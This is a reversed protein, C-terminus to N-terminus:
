RPAAGTPGARRNTRAIRLDPPRSTPVWRATVDSLDPRFAHVVSVPTEPFADALRQPGGRDAPDAVFAGRPTRYVLVTHGRVGGATRVYFSLLRAEEILDGREIRLRLAAASEIFCGNPLAGGPAPTPPGADAAMIRYRRFGPELAALLPGFDAKEEALRGLHLSFSQTGDTDNYFWLLGGFEFVLATLERPYVSRPADNGIEVIRSWIRPGLLAQAQRAHDLSTAAGLAPRLAALILPLLLLALKVSRM